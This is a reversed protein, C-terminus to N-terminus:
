VTLQAKSLVVFVFFTQFERHAIHVTLRNNSVHIVKKTKEWWDNNNQGIGAPKRRCTTPISWENKHVLKLLSHTDYFIWKSNMINAWREYKEGYLDCMELACLNVLANKGQDSLIEALRNNNSSKQKFKTQEEGDQAMKIYVSWIQVKRDCNSLVPVGHYFFNIFTAM